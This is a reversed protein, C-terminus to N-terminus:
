KRQWWRKKKVIENTIAEDAAAEEETHDEKKEIGQLRNQTYLHLKQEQSVSELAEKLRTNLSEIQNNKQTIETKLFEIMDELQKIKENDSEVRPQEVQEVQTSQENEYFKDLSAAEIYTQKEVQTSCGKLRTNLQKYVAQPSIAAAEAYEKVTLYLKGEHRIM